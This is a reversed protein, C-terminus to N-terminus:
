RSRITVDSFKYVCSSHIISFGLRFLIIIVNRIGDPRSSLYAKFWRTEATTAAATPTLKIIKIIIDRRRDPRMRLSSPAATEDTRANGVRAKSSCVCCVRSVRRRRKVRVCWMYVYVYSCRWLRLARKRTVHLNYTYM